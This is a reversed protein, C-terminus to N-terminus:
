QLVDDLTEASIEGQREFRKGRYSFVWTPTVEVPYERALEGEYRTSGALLPPNQKWDLQVPIVRAGKAKLEEVLPMSAQCHSCSSQYFYVVELARWEVVKKVKPEQQKPPLLAVSPKQAAIASMMRKLVQDKKENWQLYRTVNEASPDAAVIRFPRPPIYSGGDDWFVDSNPSEYDKWSFPLNDKQRIVSDSPQPIPTPTPTMEQTVNGAHYLPQSLPKPGDRWYDLDTGGFFQQANAAHTAFGIYSILVVHLRQM